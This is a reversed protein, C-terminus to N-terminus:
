PWWCVPCPARTAPRCTWARRTATSYLPLEFHQAMQAVAANLIGREIAGGVHDMTQLNSISGVSGCIGPAGKRVCQVLAIGGLTEAVHTLVNGALTIPATTGCIPETPVVVPLGQEALWCTMEGYHDDVKFPSIILTIFSVFPRERLAQPSGAV